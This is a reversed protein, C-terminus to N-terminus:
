QIWQSDHSGVGAHHAVSMQVIAVAVPKAQISPDWIREPIPVRDVVFARM